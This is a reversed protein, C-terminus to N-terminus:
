AFFTSPNFVLPIEITDNQYGRDKYEQPTDIVIPKIENRNKLDDLHTQIKNFIEKDINNLFEQIHQQNDTTGATSEVMYVSNQVLNITVETLKNFSEQFIKIKEEDNMTDNNIVSMIKQTEFTKLASDAIQKYTLPKVYVILEDNIQILPDWIISNQLADLVTRLDITHEIEIDDNLSVPTKMQEGYTALRLAILIVDLDISPIQWANKINPICNQIVDVVAQGSLLADPVKLLLEDRATMSYVPFEGNETPIISGAPWYQGGSPLRIYIKPQRMFSSLPNPSNSVM